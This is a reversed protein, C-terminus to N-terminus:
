IIVFFIWFYKKIIIYVIDYIIYCFFIYVIEWEKNVKEKKYGRINMGIVENSFVM